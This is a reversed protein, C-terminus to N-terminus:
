SRVKRRALSLAAGLGVLGAAVLAIAGLPVAPGGTVPLGAVPPDTGDGPGGPGGPGGPPEPDVPDGDVAIARVGVGIDGTLGMLTEDASAEASDDISLTVLLHRREDDRLPAELDFLPSGTTYDDSPGATTVPEAGTACTPSSPVGAWETACTDIRVALGRPHEVLAGSKQLEVALTARDADEIDAAIEWYAPEGPRLDLFEAPFPDAYLILRGPAGNEPVAVYDAAAAGAVGAGSLLAVVSATALTAVAVGQRSPRKM